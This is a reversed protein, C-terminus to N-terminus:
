GEAVAGSESGYDHWVFEPIGDVFAAVTSLRELLAAPTTVGTEWCLVDRGNIRFHLSTRALLAQMSRPPLADSAFKPDPCEVHFRRNFDESELEIDSGTLVNGLRCIASDPTLCLSPLYTPLRMACIAFKHTESSSGRSSNSDTVYSYDFAVFPRAATGWTGTIVNHAQRSRGQFFPPCNWRICYEDNRPTVNWGKAFCFQVLEDIRKQNRQWQYVAFAVGLVLVLLFIAIAGSM